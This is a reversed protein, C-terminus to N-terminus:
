EGERGTLVLSVELNVKEQGLKVGVTKSRICPLVWKDNIGLGAAVADGLIKLVNDADIDRSLFLEYTTRVYHTGRDWGSPKASSVLLRVVQQYSAAEPTKALTSFSAPGRRVRVVRYAHNLSPPQGPVSVRFSVGVGRKPPYSAPEPGQIPQGGVAAAM